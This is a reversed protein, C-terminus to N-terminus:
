IYRYSENGYPIGLSATQMAQTSVQLIVICVTGQLCMQYLHYPCASNNSEEVGYVVDM